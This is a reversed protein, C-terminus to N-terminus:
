NLLSLLTERLKEVSAGSFREVVEGGKIFIFTPMALVQYKETIAPIEDVDVKLFVVNAFDEEGSMEEYVPAIMKCPMCWTASFDVVILKDGAQELASEFAAVDSVSEVRSGGRIGLLKVGFAPVFSHTSSVTSLISIFAIVTVFM